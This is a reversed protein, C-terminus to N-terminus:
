FFSNIEISLIIFSALIYASAIYLSHSISYDLIGFVPTHLFMCSFPSEEFKDANQVNKIGNSTM